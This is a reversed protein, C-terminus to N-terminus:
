IKGSDECQRQARRIADNTSREPLYAYQPLNALCQKVCPRLPEQIVGAMARGSIETLGIPRLQRPITPRTVKPILAIYSNRWLQPIAQSQQAQEVLWPIVDERCAKWAAIPALVAPAAKFSSMQMFQKELEECTVDLCIPANVTPPLTMQRTFLDAYYSQLKEVEQQKSLVNGADDRLQITTKKSKPAIKKALNFLSRTDKQRAAQEMEQLQTQLWIKREQKGVKKFSKHAAKFKTFNEWTRFCDKLTTSTNERWKSYHQWMQRVSVGVTPQQWPVIQGQKKKGTFFRIAEDRLIDNMRDVDPQESALRIQVAARMRHVQPHNPARCACALGVSDILMPKTPRPRNLKQVNPLPISAQLPLHRGGLRWAFLQLDTTQAKRAVADATAQTTFIHDILTQSKTQDAPVNTNYQQLKPGTQGRLPAMPTNFDGATICIHCKPIGKLTNDLQEWVKSREKQALSNSAAINVKQCVNLVDVTCEALFLRLHQLRGPCPTDIRIDHSALLKDSVFTAVGGAKPQEPMASHTIFWGPTQFDRSERWHTEQLLVIQARLHEPQSKLKHLM